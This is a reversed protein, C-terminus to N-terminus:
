VVEAENITRQEQNKITQAFGDSYFLFPFFSGATELRPSGM